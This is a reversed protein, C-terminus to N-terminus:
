FAPPQAREPPMSRTNKRRSKLDPDTASYAPSSPRYNPQEFFKQEDTVLQTADEEMALLARGEDWLAESEYKRKKTQEAVLEGEVKSGALIKYVDEICDVELDEVTRRLAAIAELQKGGLLGCKVDHHVTIVQIAYTCERPGTDHRAFHVHLVNKTTASQQTEEAKLNLVM